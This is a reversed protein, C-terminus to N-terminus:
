KCENSKMFKVKVESTYSMLLIAGDIINGTNALFVEIATQVHMGGLLTTVTSIVVWVFFLMRAWRMFLFMGVAAVFWWFVFGWLIFNPFNIIAKYGVYSLVDMEQNSLWQYGYYNLSLLLLYLISGFVIFTRFLKDQQM